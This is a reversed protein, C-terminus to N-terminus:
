TSSSKFSAISVLLENSFMKNLYNILDPRKGMLKCSLWVGKNELQPILENNGKQPQKPCFFVVVAYQVWTPCLSIQKILLTQFSISPFPKTEQGLIVFDVKSERKVLARIILMYRSQKCWVFMRMKYHLSIATLWNCSTIQWVIDQGHDFDEKFKWKSIICIVCM